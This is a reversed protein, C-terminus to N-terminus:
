DATSCGEAPALVSGPYTLSWGPSAAPVFARTTPSLM